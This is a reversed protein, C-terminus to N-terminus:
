KKKFYVLLGILGIILLILGIINSSNKTLNGIVNGTVNPSLFFLSVIILVGAIVPIFKKELGKGEKEEPNRKLFAKVDKLYQPNPNKEYAKLLRRKVSARNGVGLLEYVKTGQIAYKVGQKQGISMLTSATNLIEGKEKPGVVEDHIHGIHYIKGGKRKLTNLYSDAATLFFATGPYEPETKYGKKFEKYRKKAEQIKEEQEQTKEGEKLSKEINDLRKLYKDM